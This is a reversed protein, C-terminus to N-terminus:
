RRAHKHLRRFNPPSRHRSATTRTFSHSWESRSVPVSMPIGRHVFETWGQAHKGRINLARARGQRRETSPCSSSTLRAVAFGGQRLARGAASCSSDRHKTTSDVFHTHFHPVCPDSPRQGREGRPSPKTNPLTNTTTRAKAAGFDYGGGKEESTPAEETTAPRAGTSGSSRLPRCAFSAKYGRAPIFWGSFLGVGRSVLLPWSPQPHCEAAATAVSQHTPACNRHRRVSLLELLLLLLLYALCLTILLEVPTHVNTRNIERTGGRLCRIM